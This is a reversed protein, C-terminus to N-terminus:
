GIIDVVLSSKIPSTSSNIMCNRIYYFMDYWCELFAKGDLVYHVMDCYITINHLDTLYSICSSASNGEFLQFCYIDGDEAIQMLEDYKLGKLKKLKEEEEEEEKKRNKNRCYKLQELICDVAYKEFIEKKMDLIIRSDEKTIEYLDLNIKKGLEKLVEDKDEYKTLVAIETAIGCAMYTGM